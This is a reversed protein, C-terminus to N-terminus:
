TLRRTAAEGLEVLAAHARRPLGAEALRARALRVNRDIHREVEDRAGCREILATMAEVDRHSAGPDGARRLLALDDGSCRRMAYALLLTAKGARLDEGVPKGTREPSGFVGLLDDRLQFAEGILDGYDRVGEPLERGCVAAGLRMPGTVTYRASKLRAVAHATAESRDGRAAATLDLFQGATLESLVENWVARAAAPLEAALRYAMMLALDGTLIATAGGYDAAEGAWRHRRHEEAFRVHMAAAGRRTSSGDMIDDHILAFAQLLELAACVEVLRAPERGASVTEHGWFCFRPRLAKGGGMFHALASVPDAWASGHAKWELRVEDLLGLLYRRLPGAVFATDPGV